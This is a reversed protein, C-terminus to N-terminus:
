SGQLRKKYKSCQIRENLQFAFFFYTPPEGASKTLFILIYGRLNKYLNGVYGGLKADLNGVKVM